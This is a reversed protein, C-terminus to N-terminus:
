SLGPLSVLLSRPTKNLCPEHPSLRSRDDDGHGVHDNIDQDEEEDKDDDIDAEGQHNDIDVLNVIVVPRLEEVGVLRGELQEPPREDPGPVRVKGVDSLEVLSEM